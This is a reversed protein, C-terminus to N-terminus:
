RKVAVLDSVKWGSSTWVVTLRTWSPEETTTRLTAGSGDVIPVAREVAVVDVVVRDATANPQVNASRFGFRASAPHDGDDHQQEAATAIAVCARCSALVLGMAPRADGTVYAESAVTLYFRAFAQAGAETHQTAEPPLSVARTTGTM